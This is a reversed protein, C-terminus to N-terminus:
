KSKDFWWNNIDPHFYKYNQQAHSMIGKATLIDFQASCNVWIDNSNNDDDIVDMAQQYITYFEGDVMIIIKVARSHGCLSTWRSTGSRDLKFALTYMNPEGEVPFMKVEMISSSDFFQNSNVWYTQNNRPDTIEKEIKKSNGPYQVHQYFTLVYEPKYQVENIAECGTIVLVTFVAALMTLLKKFM